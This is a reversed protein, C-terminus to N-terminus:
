QICWYFNRIKLGFGKKRIIKNFELTLELINYRRKALSCFKVDELKKQCKKNQQLQKRRIIAM